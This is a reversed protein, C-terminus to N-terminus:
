VLSWKIGYKTKEKLLQPYQVTKACFFTKYLSSNINYEGFADVPNCFTAVTDAAYKQHKMYLEKARLSSTASM